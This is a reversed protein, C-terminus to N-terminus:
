TNEETFATYVGKIRFKIRSIHVGESISDAASSESFESDTATDSVRSWVKDFNELNYNEMKLIVKEM